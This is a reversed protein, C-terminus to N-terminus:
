RGSEPQLQKRTGGVITGHKIERGKLIKGQAAAKQQDFDPQRGLREKVWDFPRGGGLGHNVAVVKVDIQAGVQVFALQGDGQIVLHQFRRRDGGLTRGIGHEFEVLPVELLGGLGGVLAQTEGGGSGEVQEQCIESEGGLSRGHFAIDFQEQELEGIAPADKAEALRLRSQAQLLPEIGGLGDRPLLRAPFM